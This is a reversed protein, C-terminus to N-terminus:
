TMDTESHAARQFRLSSKGAQSFQLPVLVLSCWKMCTLSLCFFPFTILLRTNRGFAVRLFEGGEM